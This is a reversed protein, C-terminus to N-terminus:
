AREGRSTMQNYASVMKEGEDAYKPRVGVETLVYPGSREHSKIKKRPNKKYGCETVCRAVTRESVGFIRSVLQTLLGKAGGSM